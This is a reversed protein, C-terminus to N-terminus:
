MMGCHIPVNVTKARAQCAPGQSEASLKGRANSLKINSRKKPRPPDIKKTKPPKDQARNEDSLMGM